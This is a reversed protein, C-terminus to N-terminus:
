RRGLHHGAEAGREGAPADRGLHEGVVPRDEGAFLATSPRTASSTAARAARPGTEVVGPGVMRLGAALHFPEVLGLLFPQGRLGAGGGQGPQLVLQVPEGGVVVGDPRVPRQAAAGGGLGVGGPGFGDRGARDDGGVVPDPVSLISM